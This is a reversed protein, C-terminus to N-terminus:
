GLLDEIETFNTLSESERELLHFLNVGLKLSTITKEPISGQVPYFVKDMEEGNGWPLETRKFSGLGISSYHYNEMERKLIKELKAYKDEDREFSDFTFELIPDGTYIDAVKEEKLLQYMRNNEPYKFHFNLKDILNEVNPYQHCLALRESTNYISVKPKPNSSVYAILYPIKNLLISKIQEPSNFTLKNIKDNKKSKCQVLYLQKLNPIFLTENRKELAICLFDSELKDDLGKIPITLAYPSMATCFHYEARRGYDLSLLISGM